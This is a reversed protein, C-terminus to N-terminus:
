WAAATRPPASNSAARARSCRTVLHKLGAAYKAAAAARSKKEVYYEYNGDSLVVRGEGELRDLTETDANFNGDHHAVPFHVQEGAAYLRTFDSDSNTVTLAM